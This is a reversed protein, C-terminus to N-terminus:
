KHKSHLAWIGLGIAIARYLLMWTFPLHSAHQGLTNIAVIVLLMVYSVMLAVLPSAIARNRKMTTIIDTLIYGILICDGFVVALRAISVLIEM